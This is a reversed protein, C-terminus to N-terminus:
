PPDLMRLETDPLQPNVLRKLVRRSYSGDEGVVEQLQLVHVTPVGLSGYQVSFTWRSVEFGKGRRLVKALVFGGLDFAKRTLCENLGDGYEALDPHSERKVVEYNDKSDAKTVKVLEMM